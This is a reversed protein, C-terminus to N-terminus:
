RHVYHGQTAPQLTPRHRTRYSPSLGGLAMSGTPALLGPATMSLLCVLAASGTPDLLRAATTQAYRCQLHAQRYSAALTQNLIQPCLAPLLSKWILPRMRKAMPTWFQSPPALSLLGRM